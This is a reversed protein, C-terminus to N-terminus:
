SLASAAAALRRRELADIQGEARRILQHFDVGQLRDGVSTQLANWLDLKGDIGLHIAELDGLRSDGRSTVRSLREALGAVAPEVRRRRVGLERMLGVLSERDEELEWSLLELFTGLRTGKNESSTRKVLELGLTEDVLHNNLYTSLTTTM